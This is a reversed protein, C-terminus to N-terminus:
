ANPWVTKFRDMTEETINPIPSPVFALGESLKRVEEQANFWPLYPGLSINLLWGDTPNIDAMIIEDFKPTQDALFRAFQEDITM